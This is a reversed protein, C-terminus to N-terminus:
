SPEHHFWTSAQERSVYKTFRSACSQSVAMKTVSIHKVFYSRRFARCRTRSQM